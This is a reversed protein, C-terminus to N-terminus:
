GERRAPSSKTSRRRGVPRESAELARVLQLAVARVQPRQASLALSRIYDPDVQAVQFFTMGRYEGFQLVLHADDGVDRLRSIRHLEANTVQKAVAAPRPKLYRSVRNNALM